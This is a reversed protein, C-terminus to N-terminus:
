SGFPNRDYRSKRIFVVRLNGLNHHPYIGMAMECQNSNFFALKTKTWVLHDKNKKRVYRGINEKLVITYKVKNIGLAEFVAQKGYGSDARFYKEM